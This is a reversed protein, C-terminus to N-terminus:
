INIMDNEKEDGYWDILFKIDEIEFYSNFNKCTIQKYKFIGNYLYYAMTECQQEIFIDESIINQKKEFFGLEKQFTHSIEHFITGLGGNKYGIIKNNIDCYGGCNKDTIILNYDCLYGIIDIYPANYHLKKNYFVKIKENIFKKIKSNIIKDNIGLYFKHGNLKIYSSTVPKVHEIHKLFSSM